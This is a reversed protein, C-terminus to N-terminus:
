RLLKGIREAVFALVHRRREPSPPGLAGRAAEPIHEGAGPATDGFVYHDFFARWSAREAAGVDRLSEGALMLAEFAPGVRPDRWWHNVLLNVAGFAQVHHWWLPPLYLADGPALDVVVAAELARAFRPHREFDPEAMDVLSAPPGAITTDLPGIYLNGIQGPPFVVFRRAGSVACAINHSTDYHAAVRSASGLWVRPDVTAPLLPQPNAEAFGPLLTRADASGAYISLPRPADAQAVLKDLVAAYPVTDRKFNFGSLDANYFYRGAMEPPGILTEATRPGALPKLYAALAAPSAGAARTVPWDAVLGRLVAPRGAPVVEDEFRRRDIAGPAFEAVGREALDSPALDLSM